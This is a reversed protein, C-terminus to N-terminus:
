GEGVAAERQLLESVNLTRDGPRLYIEAFPRRQEAFVGRLRVLELTAVVVAVVEDPDSRSHLHRLLPVLGGSVVREYIDRMKEEVSYRLPLIELPPPHAAEFRQMVDLYTQALLRLDVDEWDLEAEALNEIPGKLASTWICRRLTDSDHLFSALEKVRRYALLREVLEERPDEEGEVAQPLLMKSKLHLLWSAMWLFEGAVDLDLDQMVRLHENYQDCISFIPIDYISVENKRILHLLLDLPGSFVQLEVDPGHLTEEPLIV